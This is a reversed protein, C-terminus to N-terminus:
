RATCPVGGSTVFPQEAFAMYIYTHAQNNHDAHRFKFGNSLFDRSNEGGGPTDDANNADAKLQTNVPNFLNRKNDHIHWHNTGNTQKTMVWAPKFGTYIFAGDANGNGTYTGFKSYGQISKFVYAIYKEADAGGSDHETGVTFVTSTPATDNWRTNSDTTASTENWELYDTEPASTNKHHYVVWNGDQDRNKAIIMEPTAGLGHTVNGASGTGTYDVISFGATTNVQYGGGPNAGSETFTTRTGGNVKWQWAVFSGTNYNSDGNTGLTFGDSNFATVGSVDQEAQSANQALHKSAGRSSDFSNHDATDRKKIWIWDPQLDSNGGNTIAHGSSGNGTYLTTQFYASSDDIATYAM